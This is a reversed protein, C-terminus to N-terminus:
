KEQKEKEQKVYRAFRKVEEIMEPTINDAGGFLAFLFQPEILPDRHEDAKQDAPKKIKESLVKEAKELGADKTTLYLLEDYSLSQDSILSNVPVGFYSAIKDLTVVSLTSTRGSKLESLTARSVGVARCLSTITMGRSKCLSEIRKYMENM